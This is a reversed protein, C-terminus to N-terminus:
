FDVYFVLFNSQSKTQVRFENSENVDNEFALMKVTAVM